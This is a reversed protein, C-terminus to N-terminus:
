RDKPPNRTPFDRGTSGPKRLRRVFAILTVLVIVGFLAKISDADLEM